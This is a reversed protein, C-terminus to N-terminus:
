KFEKLILSTFNENFKQIINIDIVINKLGEFDNLIRKEVYIGIKAGYGLDMLDQKEYFEPSIFEKRSSLEVYYDLYSGACAQKNIQYIIIIPDDNIKEYKQQIYKSAENTLLFQM